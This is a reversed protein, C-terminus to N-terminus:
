QNLLHFSKKKKVAKERAKTTPNDEGGSSTRGKMATTKELSIVSHQQNGATTKDRYLDNHRSQM